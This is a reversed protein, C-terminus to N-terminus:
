PQWWATINAPLDKAEFTGPWQCDDDASLFYCSTAVGRDKSLCVAFVDSSCFGDENRYWGGEGCPTGVEIVKPQLVSYDAIKVQRKFGNFNHACTWNRSGKNQDIVTSKADCFHKLKYTTPDSTVPQWSCTSHKALTAAVLAALITLM